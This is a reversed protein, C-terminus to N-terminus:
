LVALMPLNRPFYGVFRMWSRMSIRRMSSRKQGGGTLPTKGESVIAELEDVLSEIEEGPQM